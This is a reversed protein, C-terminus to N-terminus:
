NWREVFANAQAGVLQVVALLNQSVGPVRVSARRLPGKPPIETPQLALFIELVTRM